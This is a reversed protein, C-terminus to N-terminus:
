ERTIAHEDFSWVYGPSPPLGNRHRLRRALRPLAAAQATMASAIFTVRTQKFGRLADM